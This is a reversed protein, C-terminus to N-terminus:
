SPIQTQNVTLTEPVISIDFSPTNTMLSTSNIPIRPSETIISSTTSRRKDMKSQSSDNRNKLLKKEQSHLSNHHQNEKIDTTQKEPSSLSNNINKMRKLLHFRSVGSHSSSLRSSDKRGMSDLTNNV